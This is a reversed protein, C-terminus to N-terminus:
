TPPHAGTPRLARLRNLDQKLNEVSAEADPTREDSNKGSSKRHLTWALIECVIIWGVLWGDLWGVLVFLCVVLWLTVIVHISSFGALSPM